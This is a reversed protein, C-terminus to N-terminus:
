AHTNAGPRLLVASEVDKESECIAEFDQGYVVGGPVRGIRPRPGRFLYYPEYVEMRTEWRGFPTSGASLIRGDPLLIATSHYGRPVRMRAVRRWTGSQTEYIEGDLMADTFRGSRNGGVALINGDPLLVASANVRPEPLSGAERWAPQPESLDII